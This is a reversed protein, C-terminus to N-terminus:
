SMRKRGHKTAYLSAIAALPAIVGFVTGITSEPVSHTVLITSVYAEDTTTEIQWKFKYTGIRTLVYDRTTTSGNSVTGSFLTAVWSYALDSPGKFWVELSASADLGHAPDEYYGSAEATIGVIITTGSVENGTNKDKVGISTSVDALVFTASFLIISASVVALAFLVKKM